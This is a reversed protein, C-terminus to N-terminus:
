SGGSCIRELLFYYYINVESLPFYSFLLTLADLILHKLTLTELAVEKEYSSVDKKDM